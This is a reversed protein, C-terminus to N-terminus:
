AKCPDDDSKLTESELAKVAVGLEKAALKYSDLQRNEGPKIISKGYKFDFTAPKQTLDEVPMSALKKIATPPLQSVRDRAAKKPSELRRAHGVVELLLDPKALLTAAMAEVISRSKVDNWNAIIKLDEYAGVSIRLSKTPNTDQMTGGPRGPPRSELTIQYPRKFRRQHHQRGPKFAWLTLAVMAVVVAVLAAIVITTLSM